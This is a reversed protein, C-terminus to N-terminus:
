AFFLVRYNAHIDWGYYMHSNLIILSDPNSKIFDQVAKFETGSEPLGFPVNLAIFKVNGITFRKYTSFPPPTGPVFQSASTGQLAYISTLFDKAQEYNGPQYIGHGPGTGTYDHNGTAFGFPIKDKYLAAIKTFTTTAPTWMTTGDGGNGDVIDGVHFVYQYCGTGNDQGQPCSADHHSLIWQYMDVIQSSDTACHSEAESWFFAQTDPVQAISFYYPGPDGSSASMAPLSYLSLTGLMVVVFVVVFNRKMKTAGQMFKLKSALM